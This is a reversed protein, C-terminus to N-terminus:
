TEDAGEASRRRMKVIQEVHDATEAVDAHEWVRIPLWGVDRLTQDTRRDREVNAELKARWWAANNVPPIFHDPCMHWFCGDVYVAVRSPRFVLDARSRMGPVPVVDVRYRLGRRHLERRLALEPGTDRRGQGEMRRRVHDDRPNPVLSVTATHSRVTM